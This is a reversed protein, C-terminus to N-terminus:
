PKDILCPGAGDGVLRDDDTVRTVPPQGRDLEFRGTLWMTEGATGVRQHHRQHNGLFEKRKSAWMEPSLEAACYAPWSGFTDRVSLAFATDCEWTRYAGIERALSRLSAWARAGNEDASGVALERLEVPKPFFKCAKTAQNLARVVDELPLDCLAEFYLAQKVPSLDTDFLEGLGILRRTFDSSESPEM